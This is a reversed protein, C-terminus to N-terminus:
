VGRELEGGCPPSPKRREKEDIGIEVADELGEGDDGPKIGPIWTKAACAPRLVHTAPGLGAM